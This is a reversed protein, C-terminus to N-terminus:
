INDSYYLLCGLCINYIFILDNYVLKYVMNKHVKSNCIHCYVYDSKEM